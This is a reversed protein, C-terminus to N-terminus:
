AALAALTALDLIGAPNYTELVRRSLFRQRPPTM